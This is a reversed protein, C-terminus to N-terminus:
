KSMSSDLQEQLSFNAVLGWRDPPWLSLWAKGVINQRPVTWGTRSDSSINRNDGLVFYEDEPIIDGKFAGTLPEKLYSTENLPIVNGNTHIYVIGQKIEVSEGPLGIIRKIYSEQPNNPPHFVIVDGREPEHFYYVAKNILLRQEKELGPEMSSYRVISAQITTQLLLFIVVGLTLTVLIDRYFPKM